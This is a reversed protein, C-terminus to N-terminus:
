FAQPSFSSDHRAMFNGADVLSIPLVGVFPNLINTPSPGRARPEPDSLWGRDPFDFVTLLEKDMTCTSRYFHDHRSVVAVFVDLGLGVPHLRVVKQCEWLAPLAYGPPLLGPALGPSRPEGKVM